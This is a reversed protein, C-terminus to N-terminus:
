LKTNNAYILASTLLFCGWKRSEIILNRTNSKSSLISNCEMSMIRVKEIAMEKVAKDVINKVEDEVRHLELELLDGLPTGEGM